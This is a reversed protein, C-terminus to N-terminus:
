SERKLSSYKPLGPLLVLQGRRVVQRACKDIDRLLDLRRHDIYVNHLSRLLRHDLAPAAARDWLDGSKRIKTVLARLNLPSCPRSDNDARVAVDQRVIMHRASALNNFNGEAAPALNLRVA